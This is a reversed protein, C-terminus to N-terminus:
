QQPKMALKAPKEGQTRGTVSNHMVAPFMRRGAPNPVYPLTAIRKESCDGSFSPLLSAFALCVGHM